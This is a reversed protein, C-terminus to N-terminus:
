GQLGYRSKHVVEGSETAEIGVAEIDAAAAGSVESDGAVEALVTLIAQEVAPGAAAALQYTSTLCQRPYKLSRESM